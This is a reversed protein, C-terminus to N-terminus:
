YKGRMVELSMKEEGDRRAKDWMVVYYIRSDLEKMTMANYTRGVYIAKDGFIRDGAKHDSFDYPLLTAKGGICSYTKLQESEPFYVLALNYDSHAWGAPPLDRKMCSVASKIGKCYRKDM